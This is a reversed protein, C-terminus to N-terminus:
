TRQKCEDWLADLVSLPSSKMDIRREGALAEVKAFRSIFKDCALTLAEESDTKLFRAVNVVSFLLDGLEEVREEETGAAVAERLESLEEEVKDLAGGIEPWDFGAKSAKHQVKQSRMLAPLSRSVGSLVESQTRQSKTEMKIADWNKLVEDSNNAVVDSFIHPHRIILKKCIGDAVDSFDFSGQEKEMQAHFVVQLLVDGLEEKLLETDKLDIGEIAEYTEEIFNQRVSEHTQERDWPCGEPSRLIEMIKLLDGIGYKEKRAFVVM